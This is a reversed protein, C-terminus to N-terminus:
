VVSLSPDPRHHAVADHRQQNTYQYAPAPRLRAVVARGSTETRCTGRRLTRAVNGIRRQRIQRAHLRGHLLLDLLALSRQLRPQRIARCRSIQRTRVPVRPRQEQGGVVGVRRLRVVQVGLRQLWVLDPPRIVETVDVDRLRLRLLGDGRELARQADARVIHCREHPEPPHLQILAAGTHGLGPELLRERRLRVGNRRQGSSPLRRQRPPVIRAGHLAELLRQRRIRARRAHV